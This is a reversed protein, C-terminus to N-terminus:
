HSPGTADVLKHTGPILDEQECSSAFNQRRPLKKQIGIFFYSMGLYQYLSPVEYDKGNQKKQWPHRSHQKWEMYLTSKAFYNVLIKTICAKELITKCNQM